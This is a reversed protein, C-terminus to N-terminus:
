EEELEELKALREELARGDTMGTLVAICLSPVIYEMLIVVEVVYVLRFSMKGTLKKCTTKYACLVAPIRVDWDNWQTNYIKTM